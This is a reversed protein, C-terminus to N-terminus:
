LQRFRTVQSAPVNAYSQGIPVIPRDYIRNQIFTQAYAADPTTGIDKWYVQPLNFQAGGPGLFVSYPLAPHENVYPFSALGLPYAPGIAARLDAVYTQAAWYKNEYSSEADIALCDAGDAVAEAGMAAEGAPDVGYVYQWACVSLGLSHFTQIMTPTFQSWFDDGDSSKIYLTTIGAAKAQAAIATPNGGDSQDLYWIWMGAGNFASASVPAPAAVATIPPATVKVPGYFNSHKGGRSELYIRGSGAGVPVTVAFGHPTPRLPAGIPDERAVSANSSDFYMTLSGRFHRGRIVLEGTM